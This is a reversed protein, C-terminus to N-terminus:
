IYESYTYQKVFYYTKSNIEAKKIDAIAISLFYWDDGEGISSVESSSFEVNQLGKGTFEKKISKGNFTNTLMVYMEYEKSVEFNLSFGKSYDFDEPHEIDLSDCTPYAEDHNYVFGSINGKGEIIWKSDTPFHKDFQGIYYAESSLSYDPDDFYITDGDVSVIGADSTQNSNEFWALAVDQYDLRNTRSKLLYFAGDVDSPVTLTGNESDFSETGGTATTEVPEPSDKECSSFLLLSFVSLIYICTRM